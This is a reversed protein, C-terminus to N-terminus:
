LNALRNAEIAFEGHQRFMEGHQGGLGGGGGSVAGRAPMRLLGADCRVDRSPVGCIQLGSDPHLGDALCYADAARYAFVIGRRPEGSRNVGSGHLTLAHHISIGGARPKLPVLTRPDTWLSTERCSGSWPEGEEPDHDLLGMRKSRPVVHMCGNEETADDLMVMVALVDSNTHPYFAFDQHFAWLEGTGPTSPKTSTKSHHLQINPGLLPVIHQVIRPDRALALMTPHLTTIHMQSAYQDVSHSGAFEPEDLVARLADVDEPTIVNDVVLWGHVAFHEANRTVAPRAAAEAASPAHQQQRQQQQQVPSGGLQQRLQAQLALNERQLAVLDDATM